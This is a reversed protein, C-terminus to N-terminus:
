EATPYDLSVQGLSPLQNIVGCSHRRPGNGDPQTLSDPFRPRVEEDPFAAWETETVPAGGPRQTGFYLELRAMPFAGDACDTAQGQAACAALLTLLLLDSSCVDSSWDSIRM